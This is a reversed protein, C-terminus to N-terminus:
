EDIADNESIWLSGLASIVPRALVWGRRAAGRDFPHSANKENNNPELKVDVKALYDALAVSIHGVRVL